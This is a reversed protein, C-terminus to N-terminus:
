ELVARIGKKNFIDAFIFNKVVDPVHLLYVLIFNKSSTFQLHVVGKGFGKAKVGNAM